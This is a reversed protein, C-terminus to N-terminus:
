KKGASMIDDNALFCLGVPESVSIEAAGALRALQLMILGIAGGTLDREFYKKGTNEQVCDYFGADIYEMAPYGMCCM